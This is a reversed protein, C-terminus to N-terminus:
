PFDCKKAQFCREPGFNHGAEEANRQNELLVSYNMCEIKQSTEKIFCSCCGGPSSIKSFNQWPTGLLYFGFTVLTPPLPLRKCNHDIIQNDPGFFGRGGGGGRCVLVVLFCIVKIKIGFRRRGRKLQCKSYNLNISIRFPTLNGRVM